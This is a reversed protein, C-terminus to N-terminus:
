GQPAPAIASVRDSARLVHWRLACAFRYARVSADAGTDTPSVRRMVSGEDALLDLRRLVQEPACNLARSLVAVDVDTHMRCHAASAVELMARDEDSLAYLMREGLRRFTAPLPSRSLNADSESEVGSAVLAHLDNTGVHDLLYALVAPDGMTLAYLSRAWRSDPSPWRAGLWAEVAAIELGGLGIQTVGRGAILQALIRKREGSHMEDIRASTAVILIPGLLPQRMVYQLLRLSGTDARHLDELWLVVPRQSAIAELWRCFERQLVPLLTLDAHLSHSGEVCLQGQRARLAAWAPAYRTLLAEADMEGARALRRDVVELVSGFPLTVDGPLACQARLLEFDVLEAAHQIFAEALATKGCGAPGEILALITHGAIARNLCNRLRDLADQRGFLQVDVERGPPNRIVAKKASALATRGAVAGIVDVDGVFRYGRGRVNEILRPAQPDDGLIRRLEAVFQKVQGEEVHTTAWVTDLVVRKTVLNPRREVLCRLLAYSKVTLPVREGGRWLCQNDIDLVLAASAIDSHGM